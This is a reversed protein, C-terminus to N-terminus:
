ANAPMPPQLFRWPDSESDRPVPVEILWPRGSDLARSLTARLGQPSDVREASVGFAEALKLFDPNHLDAGLVRGGFRERQDRRVNGFACNNFVLTVVAIGYQVATALEQVAFMFGGDGCIAVVAQDPHAVKVGLATPFGSGLTGQYGASIFTRPRYVPYAYWSTFGMQSIEDTVLGTEPVVERIARLYGVQPQVSEIDAQAAAKADRIAERRAGRQVSLKRLAALLAQTGADADALLAVDAPVRRMEAPDVDVRITHQGAPKWPWRWGPVELRTGIGIALDTQPWLRWAAAINLGLDHADSVVGRGSRFGVVPADLMEALELISDGAGQAGGGVFIMPFRSAAILRAAREAVDSDPPPALPGAYPAVPTIAARETFVDWPMELVAPGPRGQRMQRFAEAVLGPALAPHEVRAVWKSFGAVTGLQDAMEHLHGRGQDLFSRPVQGTLCLVPQNCGWATLLGAGANLIGPGPVVTCVGPRGTSRAYGFAMYSCAQEHRAGITRVQPQARHLADFLGYTQAGPLGFVTDVQHAMLADVLAEGGTRQSAGGSTL